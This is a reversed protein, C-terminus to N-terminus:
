KATFALKKFPQYKDYGWNFAMTYFFFFVLFGAELLLASWLSIGLFWSITPLTVFILGGEFAISHGIRMALSRTAREAGFLSDFGVNFFYNWVVTFLSLGVGVVALYGVGNGTLLATGPIVLALAILEFVVAHFIRENTKM